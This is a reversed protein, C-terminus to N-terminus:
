EELLGRYQHNVARNPHCQLTFFDYFGLRNSVLYKDGRKKQLSTVFRPIKAIHYEKGPGQTTPPIPPLSPSPPIGGCSGDQITIDDIAIDAQYSDGSVGEIKLQIPFNNYM